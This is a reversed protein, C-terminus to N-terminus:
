KMDGQFPNMRHKFCKMDGQFLNMRRKFPRMDRSPLIMDHHFRNMDRTPPRMDRVRFGRRRYGIIDGGSKKKSRIDPGM